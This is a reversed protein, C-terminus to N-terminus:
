ESTSVPELGSTLVGPACIVVRCRGCSVVTTLRRVNGFDRNGTNVFGLEVASLIVNGGGDGVVEAYDVNVDGFIDGKGGGDGGSESGIFSSFGPGKDALGSVAEFDGVGATEVKRTM